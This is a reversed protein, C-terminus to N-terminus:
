LLHQVVLSWPICEANIVPVKSVLKSSGGPSYRLITVGSVSTDRLVEQWRLGQNRQKGDSSLERCMSIGLSDRQVSRRCRINGCIGYVEDMECSQGNPLIVNQVPTATEPRHRVEDQDHQVAM